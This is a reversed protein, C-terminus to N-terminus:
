EGGGRAEIRNVVRQVGEVQRAIEEARSRETQTDTFGSLTVVRGAIHVGIAAGDVDTSSILATKVKAELVADPGMASEDKTTEFVGCGSLLASVFALM